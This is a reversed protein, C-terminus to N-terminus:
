FEGGNIIPLEEVVFKGSAENYVLTENEALHSADVDKLQVLNQVGSGGGTRNNIMIRSKPASTVTLHQSKNTVTIRNM